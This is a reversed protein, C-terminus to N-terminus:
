GSTDVAITLARDVSSIEIPIVSLFIKRDASPECALVPTSILAAFIVLLVRM